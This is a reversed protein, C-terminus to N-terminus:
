ELFIFCFDLAWFIILQTYDCYTYQDYIAKNM